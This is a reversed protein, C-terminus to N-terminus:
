EYYIINEQPINQLINKINEEGEYFLWSINKGQSPSKYTNVYNIFGPGESLGVIKKKKSM